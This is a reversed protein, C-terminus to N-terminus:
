AIAFSPAQKVNLDPQLIDQIGVGYFDCLKGLTEFEIKTTQNLEIETLAKRSLGIKDAVEQITVPRGIKAQYELRLQRARSIFRTM